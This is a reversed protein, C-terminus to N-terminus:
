KTKQMKEKELTIRNLIKSIEEPYLTNIFELAELTNDSSHLVSRKKNPPQDKNLEERLKMKLLFKGNSVYPYDKQYKKDLPIPNFDYTIVLVAPKGSGGYERWRASGWKGGRLNHTAKEKLEENLEYIYLLNLGHNELWKIIWDTLNNEHAWERIIFAMIEGTNEKDHVNLYYLNELWKSKEALGKLLSLEPTWGNENLFKQLGIWTLEINIGLQSTLTRLVKTYKNNNILRRNDPRIKLLLGSAEAKHYVVHYAMALLYHKPNPVFYKNHWLIRETLMEEACHKPYYPLGRYDSGTMGSISYIDCPTSNSERYPSVYKSIKVLDDDYVLLDIDEGKRINPLDEFWRLIIYRIQEKNLVKFFDDVNMSSSIYRRTKMLDSIRQQTDLAKDNKNQRDYVKKLYCLLSYSKPRKKLESQILFEAEELKGESILNQIMETM